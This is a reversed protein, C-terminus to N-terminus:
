YTALVGDTKELSLTNMSELKYNLSRLLNICEKHVKDNHTSLFITPHYKELINKAGNLVDFEAGEVDIKMLNPAMIIKNEVLEDLDFTPVLINGNNKSLFGTAAHDGDNFYVLDKKDSVAGSVAISNECKNLELHKKLHILNRPAPEFAYVKGNKGAMKSAILSYFGVNAGIDYVVDGSKIKKAFDIQQDKEYTGLWYTNVGSGKIWKSGRLIGQFIPLITSKPILKLPLRLILGLITKKSIKSFDLM